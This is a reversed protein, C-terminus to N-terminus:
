NSADSTQRSLHSNRAEFDDEAKQHLQPSSLFPAPSNRHCNSSNSVRNRCCWTSIINLLNQWTPAPRQSTKRCIARVSSPVLPTSLTGLCLGALQGPGDTRQARPSSRTPATCEVGGPCKWEGSRPPTQGGVPQGGPTHPCPGAERTVAWSHTQARPRYHPPVLITLNTPQNAKLKDCLDRTM